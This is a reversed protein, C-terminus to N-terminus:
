SQAQAWWLLLKVLAEFPSIFFFCSCCCSSDHMVVRGAGGGAGALFIQTHRLFCCRRRAYITKYLLWGATSFLRKTSLYISLDIYFPIKRWGCWHSHVSPDPSEALLPLYIISILKLLCEFFFYIDILILQSAAAAAPRNQRNPFSRETMHSTDSLYTSPLVPCDDYARKSIELIDGGM